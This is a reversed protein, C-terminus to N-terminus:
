VRAADAVVVGLDAFGVPDVVSKESEREDCDRSGDAFRGCPVDSPM